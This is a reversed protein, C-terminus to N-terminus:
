RARRRQLLEDVSLRFREQRLLFICIAALGINRLLLGAGMPTDSWGGFCSCATTSGVALQSVIIAIFLLLLLAVGGAALRVALGILLLSGLLIELLPLAITMPPILPDAVVSLEALTAAFVAQDTLKAVGSVLFVSGLILRCAVATIQVAAYRRM